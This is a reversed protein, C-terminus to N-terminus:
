VRAEHHASEYSVITGKELPSFGSALLILAGLALLIFPPPPSSPAAFGEGKALIGDKVDVEVEEDGKALTDNAAGVVGVGMVPAAVVAFGKEVPVKLKPTVGEEVEVGVVSADVVGDMAGPPNNLKPMVGAEVGLGEVEVVAEAGNNVDDPELPLKSPLRSVTNNENSQPMISVNSRNQKSTDIEADDSNEVVVGEVANVVAAFGMEVRVGPANVNLTPLADIGAEEEISAM